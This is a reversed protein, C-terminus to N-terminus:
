NETNTEEEREGGAEGSGAALVFSQEFAPCVSRYDCYRCHYGPRAAFEGARIRAAVDRVKELARKANSEQPSFSFAENATFNYLTLREPVLGLHHQAALAYLALQLSKEVTKQPRPEGAKYEVIEVRRSGGLRNIQDIRGTLLVDEWPWRFPKELELVSVPAQRIQQHFVQLQQWGSVRYEQQQYDDRFPWATERWQQEYIHQLEALPLEPQQQCARFFQAVSRHMIQGFVMAPTSLAPLRWRYAFKYKMPCKLYTELASHSLSLPEDPAPEFSHRAWDAILSYCAPNPSAGGSAPSAPFLPPQGPPAPAPASDLVVGAGAEVVPELQEVDRAAHPDRLIDELFISPHKRPGTLTTLSLRRRARTLAVYCLRREEQIHFDGPPLAEQMLAEPFEFLPHRRTTPFDNRNLRLVFVSGFELGKAAHVTMLQVADRNDANEPLTIAGGAEQFFTFYEIFDGLRKSESKEKEWKRLFAAFADLYLRDPDSPLLRLELRDLLADFLRTLPLEASRARFDALLGLLEGLRTQQDRVRPHLSEIAAALTTRERRARDILDLLSEPTLGWAPIALLRALSVNDHPFHIVSLYALLDRILTNNLISLGRIVFPIRARALAEVLAERHVHARYLVATDAAPGPQRRLREIERCVFAAEAAADEVEALRVKEGAPHQPQLKKHQDFRATGNQAILTTAAALIRATSRYNQALTIKGCDPFLEAFKSFSAYSAGRFRYIAQDDDGVVMLNRHRGALLSLLEIQAINTDQFEDVLIYRFRDQYHQRLPQNHRLLEVARFLSGGFTIRNAQRLLNEAAAYVRALEQQRALEDERSRRDEESLLPAERELAAALQDAFDQYDGPSVLEDQCRSFFDQFDNLFRGPESLKKFLNLGLQDLHRRLFIWYDVKDLIQLAQHHRRLLDYCFAHFTHVGVGEARKDGRRRIRVRMEDAAKNTFTIALINEGDLEPIAHLLYLVRETIIRTKGTGAGAVVLLPGHLHEVAARQAPNLNIAQATSAM